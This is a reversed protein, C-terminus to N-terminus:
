RRRPGLLAVRVAHRDLPPAADSTEAVAKAVEVTPRPFRLPERPGPFRKGTLSGVMARNSIATDHSLEVLTATMERLDDWAFGESRAVTSDAPLREVYVSLRRVGLQDPGWCADALDLGYFRRFDVDLDDWREAVFRALGM